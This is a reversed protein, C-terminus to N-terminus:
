PGGIKERFFVQNLGAWGMYGAGNILQSRANQTDNRAEGLVVPGLISTKHEWM